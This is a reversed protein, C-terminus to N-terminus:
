ANRHEEEWPIKLWPFVEHCRALVQEIREDKRRRPVPNPVHFLPTSLLPHEVTPTVLGLESRVRRIALMEAPFVTYPVECFPVADKYTNQCHYDCIDFLAKVLEGENTWADLVRQYLGLGKTARQM